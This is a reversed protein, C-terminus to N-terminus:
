KHRELLPLATINWTALLRTGPDIIMDVVQKGAPVPYSAQAPAGDGTPMKISTVTSMSGDAYRFTVDVDLDFQYKQQTQTLNVSVASEEVRWSAEIHPIGGQFLWQSFFGDLQQGSAEELHRMFDATRVNKDKYEAYYSRVGANFANVGIKERLMHLTWAGKQYMMQGSVDNLDEVYPRVIQFDYDDQYFSVVRNRADKLGAIFDDHGYDHARYLLTYYTAFGESLWVDNWDSETVANGFWQHALEHIIVLQWRRSRDGTVSGEAYAIASAAEMGGGTANSVINALKEYSYPGVLDTYYALVKKTTEAFDYFGADRDQRAVWTQISKGDFEDVHQVAFDAVGLMFLWTAIPVSNKWHSLTTGDGQSTEEVLVGNSVVLYHSPATVILESTAKDSPHDVTPLWNRVKSSWNDSFFARDGHKNLGIKLGAAPIGSYTVKVQVREFAQSARGLQIFIQDSDHRFSLPQGNMTVGHVVMGKGDLADSQNILDLRLERQGATLFRADVTATGSVSDSEDSLKLEFAYNLIDIGPNKPYSDKYDLSFSQASAVHSLLLAILLALCKTLM